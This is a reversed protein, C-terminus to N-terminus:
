QSIAYYNQCVLKVQQIFKYKVVIAINSLNRTQIQVMTSFIDHNKVVPQLCSKKEM